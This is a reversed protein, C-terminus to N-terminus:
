KGELEALRARVSQLEKVLMPVLKSYDVGMMEDPDEPQSVAEPAITVLEQAIFGYRQHEGGAKWDFKRVQLADILNAADDADAVNEKLRADSTLNYLVATGSGSQTVSGISAGNFAFQLYGNGDATGSAHGIGISGINTNKMLTIGQSPTNSATTTGVLLNGSTDIRMREAPTDSAATFFRLDAFNGSTAQVSQISAARALSGAGNPDFYLAVGTNVSASVYNSLTLANFVTGGSTARIEM